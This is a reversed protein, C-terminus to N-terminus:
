QDASLIRASLVGGNVLQLWVADAQPEVEEALVTLADLQEWEVLREKVSTEFSIGEATWDILYGQLWDLSGASTRIWLQDREEDVKPLRDRGVSQLWLTDLPMSEQEAPMGALKWRPSSAGVVPEGPLWAGDVLSLIWSDQSPEVVPHPFSVTWWFADAQGEPLVPGYDGWGVWPVSVVGEDLLVDVQLDQCALLATCLLLNM